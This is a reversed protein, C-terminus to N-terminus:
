WTPPPFPTDAAFSILAKTEPRNHRAWKMAALIGALPGLHGAMNDKVLPLRYHEFRSLDGNSNLILSPLQKGAQQIIRDLIVEGNITKLCKDGGGMRSAKGGALLM